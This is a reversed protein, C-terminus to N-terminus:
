ILNLHFLLQMRLIQFICQLIINQCRENNLAVMVIIHHDTLEIFATFTKTDMNKRQHIRTDFWKITGVSVGLKTLKRRLKFHCTVQVLYDSRECVSQSTQLKNLSRINYM